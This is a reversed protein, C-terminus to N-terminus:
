FLVSPFTVPSDSYKMHQNYSLGSWLGIDWADVGRARIPILAQWSYPFCAARDDPRGGGQCYLMASFANSPYMASRM